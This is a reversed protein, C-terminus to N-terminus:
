NMSLTIAQSISVFHIPLDEFLRDLSTDGVGLFANRVQHGIRFRKAYALRNSIQYSHPQLLPGNKARRLSYYALLGTAVAHLFCKPESSSIMGLSNGIDLFSM